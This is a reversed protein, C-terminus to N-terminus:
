KERLRWINIYHNVNIADAKFDCQKSFEDGRKLHLDPAETPKHCGMFFEWVCCSVAFVTKFKSLADM